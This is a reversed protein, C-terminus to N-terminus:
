LKVGRVVNRNIGTAEGGYGGRGEGGRYVQRMSGLKKKKQEYRIKKKVRPNRVLKSRQPMLGKNKEIAYTIKRKGDPGVSEEQHEHVTGNQRAAEAYAAKRAQKAKNASSITQYYGEADADANAAQRIQKALEVDAQDHGGSDNDNSDFDAARNEERGRRQAERNLRERKEIVRERYPVDTDGGADRGKAGRKNAKQAIQSTYFRLSKKRQAKEAAEATTLPVEDGFDSDEDPPNPPPVAKPANSPKQKSSPELLSSLDALDAETKALRAAREAEAAANASLAARESKSLRKKKQKPRRLDSSSVESQLHGISRQAEKASVEKDKTEEDPFQGPQPLKVSKAKEWLQRSRVISSIIPHNRLDAPPMAVPSNETLDSDVTSTLIAFYMAISGLYSSLARWKTVGIPTARAKRFLINEAQALERLEALLPQLSVFDKALPEFEPYRTRLIKLKEVDDMDGTVVVDPLKEYVTRTSAELGTEGKLGEAWEEEDFGFDAEKMGELRKQQLRKAEAEEELADAETEIAEANYYSQRTTGWDRLNDGLNDAETSAQSGSQSADDRILGRSVADAPNQSHLDDDSDDEDVDSSEYALIEEDSPQLATYEEEIKRRRKSEPRDDLLIQDGQTHFDDESDDFNENVDFRVKRDDKTTGSVGAAGFPKGAKRKKGM